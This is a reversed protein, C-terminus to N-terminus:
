FNSGQVSRYGVLFNSQLSKTPWSFTLPSECQGLFDIIFDQQFTKFHSRDYPGFLYIQCDHYFVEQNM